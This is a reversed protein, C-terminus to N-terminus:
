KGPKEFSGKIEVSLKGVNDKPDADYMRLFLRGTQKAIFSHNSGVMFVPNEPEANNGNNNNTGNGGGNGVQANPNTVIMGVLSGLNFAQLEKPIEVGDPSLDYDIRIKWQGTASITVPKGEGVTINTDQWEKNAFIDMKKTEAVAEKSRVAQLANAAPAYQPVLRLIQSYCDRAKELEGKKEYEGALKEVNQIFQQHLDILRPDEIKVENTAKGNNGKANRQAQPQGRNPQGKQPVQALLPTIWVLAVALMAIAFRVFASM